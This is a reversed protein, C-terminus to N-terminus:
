TPRSAGRGSDSAAGASGEGEVPSHRAIRRQWKGLARLDLAALPPLLWRAALGGPRFSVASGFDLIVPAGDTGARVNGRHRLDLHVVGREHLGRVARELRRGFEPSFTWPRRGSFRVGGRHELVLARADIRGLLRPVAPHDSLRRYVRAERRLLWPGLFRRVLWGRPAFDKVVVRGGDAEVLLVDPNRPGGRHLTVLTREALNARSLAPHPPAPKM